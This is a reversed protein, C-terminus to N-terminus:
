RLAAELEKRVKLVRFALVVVGIMLSSTVAMGLLDWGITTCGTALTRRIAMLVAAAFTISPLGAPALDGFTPDNAKGFQRLHREWGWFADTSLHLLVAVRPKLNREIYLAHNYVEHLSFYYILVATQTVGATGWEVLILNFSFHDYVAAIFAYFAILPALPMFQMSMFWNMRAMMAQYENCYAELQRNHTDELEGMRKGTM